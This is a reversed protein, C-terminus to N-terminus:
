GVEIEVTVRTGSGPASHIHLSGDIAEARERMATLGWRGSALAKEADFGAGDDRIELRVRTAIREVSVRVSKAKAHQAVNNLAAQSIRFLVMEIEPAFREEVGDVGVDLGTRRALERAHFRLADLLGYSALMPPKLETLVDSITRGTQELLARSDEIKRRAADGPPADRLAELNFGLAALNQGVRDHLERAIDRREKEQLTTFRRGLALLQDQQRVQLALAEKLDSEARQRADLARGFEGALERVEAPGHGKLPFRFYGEGAARVLDRLDAIPGAISRSVAYVLAGALALLVLCIAAAGGAQRYVAASMRAAPVGVTVKWGSSPVTAYAYIREVGDLGTARAYGRDQTLSEAVAAASGAGQGRWRPADSSRSLIAGARDALVAVSGEPLQSAEILHDLTELAVPAFIMAAPVGAADRVPQSNVFVQRATLRGLTVNSVRAADSGIAERFWDFKRVEQASPVRDAQVQLCLAAGDRMRIGLNAFEPHISMVGAFQPDCRAPDLARVQPRQALADLTVRVQQLFTDVVQARANASDLLIARELAEAHRASRQIAYLSVGLMPLVVAAGMLFVLGRIGIAHRLRRQGARVPGAAKVTTETKRGGGVAPAFQRMDLQLALKIM